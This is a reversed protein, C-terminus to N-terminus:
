RGSWGRHFTSARAIEEFADLLMATEVIGCRFIDECLDDFDDVSQTLDTDAVAVDFVLVNDDRVVELDLEDVETRGHDEIRALRRRQVM